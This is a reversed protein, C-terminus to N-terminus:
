ARRGVYEIREEDERHLVTALPAFWEAVEGPLPGRHCLARPRAKFVLIGGRQLAAVLGPALRADTFHVCVVIAYADEEFVADDLDAEIWRIPLGGARERASALGTPAIDVADVRYGHRALAIAHRGRGCAVDLARGAAPAFALAEGLLAVPGTEVHAGARYREEWRARDSEAM